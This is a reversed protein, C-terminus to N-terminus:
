WWWSHDEGGGDNHNHDYHIHDCGEEHHVVGGHLDGNIVVILAPLKGAAM